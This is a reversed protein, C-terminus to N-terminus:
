LCVGWVAESTKSKLDVDLCLWFVVCFILHGFTALIAYKWISQGIPSNHNISQM